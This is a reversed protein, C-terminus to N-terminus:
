SRSPYKRKQKVHKKAKRIYWRKNKLTKKHSQRHRRSGGSRPSKRTSDKDCNINIIGYIYNERKTLRGKLSTNCSKYTNSKKIDHIRKVFAKYANCTNDALINNDKPDKISKTETLIEKVAVEVNDCVSESVDADSVDADTDTGTYTEQQVISTVAPSPTTFLYSWFSPEDKVSETPPPSTAVPAVEKSDPASSEYTGDVSALELMGSLLPGFQQSIQSISKMPINFLTVLREEQVTKDENDLYTLVYSKESKRIGEIDNIILRMDKTVNKIAVIMNQIMENRIQLDRHIRTILERTKNISFAGGFGIWSRIGTGIKSLIGAEEEIKNSFADNKREPVSVNDDYLGAMTYVNKMFSMYVNGIQNFETIKNSNYERLSNLLSKLKVDNNGDDNEAIDKKTVRIAEKLQLENSQLISNSQNVLKNVTTNVNKLQGIIETIKENEKRIKQQAAKVTEEMKRMIESQQKKITETVLSGQNLGDIISQTSKESQIQGSESEGERESM